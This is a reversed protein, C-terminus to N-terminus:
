IDQEMRALMDNVHDLRNINKKIEKEGLKNNKKKGKATNSTKRPLKRV